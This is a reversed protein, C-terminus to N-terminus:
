EGFRGAPRVDVDDRPVKMVWPGAHGAGNCGAKVLYRSAGAGGSAMSVIGALHNAM